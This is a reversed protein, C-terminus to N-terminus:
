KDRELFKKNLTIDRCVSWSETDDDWIIPFKKPMSELIDFLHTVDRAYEVSRHFILPHVHKHRKRLGDIVNSDM